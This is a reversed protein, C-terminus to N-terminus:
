CGGQASITEQRVAPIVGAPQQPQSPAAVGTMYRRFDFRAKEDKYGAFSPKFEEVVYKLATEYNGGLVRIDEGVGKALLLLRATQARSEADAYLVPTGSSRGLTRLGQNELLQDFPINIAGPLHGEQFTVEDRLDVLYYGTGNGHVINRLQHYSLADENGSLLEVVERNSRGYNNTTFLNVIVVIAVFVFALISINNLNNNTNM